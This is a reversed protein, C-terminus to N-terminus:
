YLYVADLSCQIQVNFYQQTMCCYKVSFETVRDDLRLAGDCSSQLVMALMGSLKARGEAAKLQLQSGVRM